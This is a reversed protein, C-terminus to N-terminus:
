IFPRTEEYLYKKYDINVVNYYEDFLHILKQYLTLTLLIDEKTLRRKNIDNLSVFLTSQRM